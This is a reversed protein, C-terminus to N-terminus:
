KDNHQAKSLPCVKKKVRSNTVINDLYDVEVVPSKISRSKKNNLM